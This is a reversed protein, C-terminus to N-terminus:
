SDKNSLRNNKNIEDQLQRKLKQEKDLTNKKFKEFDNDLSEYNKKTEVTEKNSSKFKMMFLLLSVLLIVVLSWLIMNYLSKELPVGLFAIKDKESNVNQLSTNTETITNKLQNIEKQQSKILEQTASYRKEQVDLSDAVQSKLELLWTKKIVKFEKYKNSNSIIYEIKSTVDLSDLPTSSKAVTTQGVALGLLTVFSLKTLHKKIIFKM